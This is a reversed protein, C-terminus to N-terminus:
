LLGNKALFTEMSTELPGVKEKNNQRAKKKRKKANLIDGIEEPSLNDLSEMTWGEKILPEYMSIYDYYAEEASM